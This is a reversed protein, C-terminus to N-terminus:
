QENSIPVIVRGRVAGAILRDAVSICGELPVRETMADLLSPDLDRALRRWAERREERPCMVSDIGALTIGRLIFPAVTAPLSMGGALGCAAVAGRYKMSACVNALVHGGAVDVAGAWQEKALPKGPESFQSRPLIRKAGLKTLYDSEEVRGTVAIVEYGLRALLATAVSGVGGATSQLRIAYRKATM